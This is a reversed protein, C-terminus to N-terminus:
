VTVGLYEQSGLIIAIVAEETLRQADGVHLCQARLQRCEPSSVAAATRTGM